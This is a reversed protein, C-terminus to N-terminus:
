RPTAAAKMGNLGYFFLTATQRAGREGGLRDAFQAAPELTLFGALERGEAISEAALNALTGLMRRYERLEARTIPTGHGPVIRTGDNGARVIQDVGAIMGGVTAGTWLDIFPPAGVEVIDGTHLVNHNPLWVILDGDSHAGPIHTLVVPDGDLMIRLSDRVLTTPKADKPAAKRHWRGWDVVVTDKLAQAWMNAHAVIKAGKRRYRGNGGIHDYHYHTNVVYRVPLPSITRLVSDFAAANAADESDVLLLGKTGILVMVGGAESGSIRYLRDDFKEVAYAVPAPAPVADAACAALPVFAALAAPLWATAPSFARRPTARSTRINM